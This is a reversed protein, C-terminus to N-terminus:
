EPLYRIRYLSINRNQYSGLLIPAELILGPNKQLIDLSIRDSWIDSFVFYDPRTENIREARNSVRGMYLSPIASEAAFFPAWDGAVSLGKAVSAEMNARVTQSSYSPAVLATGIIGISMMSYVALSLIISTRLRRVLIMGRLRYVLGLTAAAAFLFLTLMTNKHLGPEEGPDFPYVVYANIINLLSMVIMLFLGLVALKEPNRLQSWAQIERPGSQQRNLWDLIVLIAAPVIPASYRPPNYSFLNLMIPLFVISSVLALRFLNEKLLASREAITHIICLYATTLLFPSLEAINNWFVSQPSSIIESLGAIRRVWVGRTLILIVVLALVMAALLVMNRTNRTDILRKDICFGLALVACVPLLYFIASMKISLGALLAIFALMALAILHRHPKLPILLLMGTYIFLILAIEFLAVRSFNFLAPNIAILVAGILAIHSGWILRTAIVMTALFVTFLFVNVLRASSLQLGFTKFALYYSQQTLPSGKSWGPYDDNANWHTAGFVIRNKADLTKYGEDIHFGVDVPIYWAPPDADLHWLRMGAAAIIVVLLLLSNRTRASVRPQKIEGKAHSTHMSATSM